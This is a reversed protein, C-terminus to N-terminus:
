YPIRSNPPFSMNEPQSQQHVSYIILLGSAYINNYEMRKRVIHYDTSSQWMVKTRRGM